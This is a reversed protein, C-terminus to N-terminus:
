ESLQWLVLLLLLLLLMIETRLYCHEPDIDAM